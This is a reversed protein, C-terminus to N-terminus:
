ARRFAQRLGAGLVLVLLGGVGLWLSGAPTSGGTGALTAPPPAEIALNVVLEYTGAETVHLGDDVAESVTLISRLTHGGLTPNVVVVDWSRLKTIM